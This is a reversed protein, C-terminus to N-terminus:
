ALFNADKESARENPHQENNVGIEQAKLDQRPVVHLKKPEQNEDRRECVDRRVPGERVFFSEQGDVFLQFDGAANLGGGKRQADGGERSELNSRAVRGHASDSAIEVIEKAHVFLVEDGGSVDKHIQLFAQQTVGSSAV